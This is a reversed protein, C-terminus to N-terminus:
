VRLYKKAIDFDSFYAKVGNIEQTTEHGKGAILIIDNICASSLAEKIALERNEIIQYNNNVVGNVIDSIIDGAVENRPNDSTIIVHDALKTAIAGMKPRKTKDRNGGCGFVCYIKGRNEIQQLTLLAKELSDPTHAFDVIVLPKDEVSIADMRGCVPTIDSILSKVEILTYGDLLLTGIVALVNYINFYGVINLELEICEDNYSVKFKIGRITLQIDLAKLKGSDIGYDIINLEERDVKLEHYLRKGYDDDTNIIANELNDWYFLEKKALYYNEMTLHYDLHDQTLNSFIATTFATGNVRGQVLSHSSVEMAIITAKQERFEVFSKQLTIPDPTTSDSYIINPYIGIGTTGIIGVTHQLRNYVQSLWYSISTKGNTGTIGFVKCSLSPYHYKSAALVGVHLMLNDVKYSNKYEININGHAEYLIAQVNQEIAMNIFDRGDRVTGPYACFISKNNLKRSDIQLENEYLLTGLQDVLQTSQELTIKSLKSIM